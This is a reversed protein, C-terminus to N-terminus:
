THFVPTLLSAHSYQVKRQKESTEEFGDIEKCTKSLVINEVYLARKLSILAFLALFLVVLFCIALLLSAAERILRTPACVVLLNCYPCTHMPEKNCEGEPAERGRSELLLYALACEGTSYSNCIYIYIYIYVDNRVNRVSGTFTFVIYIFCLIIINYFIINNINYIIFFMIYNYKTGALILFKM